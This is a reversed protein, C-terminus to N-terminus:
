EEKCATREKEAHSFDRSEVGLLWFSSSMYLVQIHSKQVHIQYKKKITLIIVLPEEIIGLIIAALSTIHPLNDYGVFPALIGSLFSVALLM